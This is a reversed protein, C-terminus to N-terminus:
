TTPTKKTLLFAGMLYHDLGWAIAGGGWLRLTEALPLAFGIAIALRRSFILNM